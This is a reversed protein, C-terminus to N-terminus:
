QITSVGEWLERAADTGGQALLGTYQVTKVVLWRRIAFVLTGDGLHCELFTVDLRLSVDLTMAFLHCNNTSPRGSQSSGVIQIQHAVLYRHELLVLSGASQEAIADGVELQVLGDDIAADGQQLLFANLKFISM